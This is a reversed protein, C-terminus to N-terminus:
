VCLKLYLALHNARAQHPQTTRTITCLKLVCYINGVAARSGIRRQAMRM